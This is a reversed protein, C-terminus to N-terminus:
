SRAAVITSGPSSLASNARQLVFYCLKRLCRCLALLWGCQRKKSCSSCALTSAPLPWCTKLCKLLPSIACMRIAATSLTLFTVASCTFPTVVLACHLSHHSRLPPRCMRRQRDVLWLCPPAHVGPSCAVATIGRLRKLVKAFPLDIEWGNALQLVEVGSSGVVLLCGPNKLWIIKIVPRDSRM